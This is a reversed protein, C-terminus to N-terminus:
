QDDVADDPREHDANKQLKTTKFALAGGAGNDYTGMMDEGNAAARDVGDVFQYNDDTRLHRDDFHFNAHNPQRRAHLANSSEEIRMSPNRSTFEYNFQSFHFNSSMGTPSNSGNNTTRQLLGKQQWQQLTANSDYEQKNASSGRNEGAEAAAALPGTNDLQHQGGGYDENAQQNLQRAGTKIGFTMAPQRTARNFEGSSDQREFKTADASEMFPM